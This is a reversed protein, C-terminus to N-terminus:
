PTPTNCQNESPFNGKYRAGIAPTVSKIKRLIQLSIPASTITVSNTLASPIM